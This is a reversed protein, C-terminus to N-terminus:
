VGEIDYTTGRDLLVEQEAMGEIDRFVRLGTMDESPTIELLVSGRAFFEGTVRSTSTSQFSPDFIETVEGRKIAEIDLLGDLNEVGRYLKTGPRFGPSNEIAADLERLMGVFTDVTNPDDPNRLAKQLDELDGDAEEMSERQANRLDSSGEVKSLDKGQNSVLFERLAAYYFSQYMDMAALQNETMQTFDSPQFVMADKFVKASDLETSHENPDGNPTDADTNLDGAKVVYFGSELIGKTPGYSDIYVVVSDFAQADSTDGSRISRDSHGVYVADITIDGGDNIDDFL